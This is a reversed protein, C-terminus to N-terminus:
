ATELGNNLPIAIDKRVRIRQEEFYFNTLNWIIMIASFYYLNLVVSIGLHMSITLMLWTRRTKKHWIFFPYCIEIIITSWGIIVLLYSHEAFWSFDINLDRNSYPLHVAKWISEGNWWNFGLLKDLGSFFYAMSIHIQFLRKTPTPNVNRNKRKFLFNRLSFNKDSPFLILYFLSMSTFFDAGYVFFSSGKLLAIQLLLLLFSATRAYFGTIICLCLMVFSVKTIVITSAESIGLSQFFSVIKPFTILWEPTFVNM